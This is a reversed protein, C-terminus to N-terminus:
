DLALQEAFCLVEHIGGRAKISGAVPLAHDAKILLHGGVPNLTHHLQQIALLPSEILGASNELEPFLEVLLPAFRRLRADAAYIEDQTPKDPASATQQYYPNLWLIPKGERILQQQTLPIALPTTTTKAM